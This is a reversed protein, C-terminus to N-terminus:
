PKILMEEGKKQQERAEQELLAQVSRKVLELLFPHPTLIGAESEMRLAATLCMRADEEKGTRWLIYSMEELRRRFLARREPTFIEESAQRYIELVRAEKQYPTLVLRSESAEKLLSLYKKAEEEELFWAEFAPTQFLSASRELLDTRTKWEEEKLHLYILPKLPPTPPSGMLPRWKAFEGPPTEGRKKNIEAAETVLGLCYEPDAELIEWPAQKRFMAAYDHFNKRTTELAQFDMIGRVDNVLTHFAVVGQPLQPRVLWVLRTGSGDVPSLFGEVPPPQPPRFVAPSSDKVEGVEVGQSKLRFIAKRVNKLVAKSSSKAALRHLLIGAEPSNWRGLSEILSLDVAEDQGLLAQFFPYAEEGQNKILGSFVRERQGPSLDRLRALAPAPDDVWAAFNEEAEKLLDADAAPIRTEGEGTKMKKM